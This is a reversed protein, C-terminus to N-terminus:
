KKYRRGDKKTPYQKNYEEFLMSNFSNIDFGDPKIYGQKSITINNPLIVKDRLWQIELFWEKYTKYKM